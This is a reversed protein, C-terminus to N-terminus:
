LVTYHVIRRCMCCVRMAGNPSIYGETEHYAAALCAYYHILTRLFKSALKRVPRLLASKCALCEGVNVGCVGREEEEEGGRLSEVEAM